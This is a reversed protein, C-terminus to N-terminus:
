EVLEEVHTQVGHWVLVLFVIHVIVNSSVHSWWLTWFVRKDQRRRWDLIIESREVVVHHWIVYSCHVHSAFHIGRPRILILIRVCSRLGRQRLIVLHLVVIVLDLRKEIQRLVLCPLHPWVREHSLQLDGIGQLCKLLLIAEL